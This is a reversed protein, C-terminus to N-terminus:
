PHPLISVITLRRIRTSGERRDPGYHFFVRYAGPTHQQVYAQFVEEGREGRLGHFKHTQLSPHRLNTEMLGLTKRVQSLLGAKGPQSELSKLQEEAEPTLFLERRM